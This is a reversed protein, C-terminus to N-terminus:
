QKKNWGVNNLINEDISDVSIKAWKYKEGLYIKAKAETSDYFVSDVSAAPFGKSFLDQPLKNIFIEATEKSEFVTKLDLQEINYSTDKGSLIYQVNYKKQSFVTASFLFIMLSILLPIRRLYKPIAPKM